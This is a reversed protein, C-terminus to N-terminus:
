FWLGREAYFGQRVRRLCMLDGGVVIRDVFEQELAGVSM